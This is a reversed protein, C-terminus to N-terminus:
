WFYLFNYYKKDLMDGNDQRTLERDSGSIRYTKKECIGYCDEKCVRTQEEIPYFSLDKNWEYTIGKANCQDMLDCTTFTALEIQFGMNKLTDTNIKIVENERKSYINFFLETFRGMGESRQIVFELTGDGNLDILSDRPCETPLFSDEFVKTWHDNLRIFQQHVTMSDFHEVVIRHTSSDSILKDEYYVITHGDEAVSIRMTYQSKIDSKHVSCFTLLLPTFVLLVIKM